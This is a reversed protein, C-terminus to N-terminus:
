SSSYGPGTINCIFYPPMYHKISITHLYYTISLYMTDKPMQEHM